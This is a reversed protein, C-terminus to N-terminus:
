KVAILAAFNFWKLWVDVSKFGAWRLRELHVALPEPVLVKDLAERKQSIELDSYGNEKKFGYYMSQHLEALSPDTHALKESFLLVGRPALGDYVRAIMADRQEPAIFQLTFNVVVVSAHSIDTDCIDACRLTFRDTEGAKDLRQAYARIMPDSNDVAVMSFPTKGMFQSLALGFNGNSCGLDYIRTDKQYFRRAMQVQRRILERYLPISRMLMDDFVRVVTEDFQFPPVPDKPTGYIHDKPM